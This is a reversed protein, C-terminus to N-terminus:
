LWRRKKPDSFETKSRIGSAPLVRAILVGGGSDYVHLQGGAPMDVVALRTMAGGALQKCFWAALIAKEYKAYAAVLASRRNSLTNM